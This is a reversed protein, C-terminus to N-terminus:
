HNPPLSFSASPSRMAKRARFPARAAVAFLLAPATLVAYDSFGSAATAILLPPITAIAFVIGANLSPDDKSSPGFSAYALAAVPFIWLFQPLTGTYALLTILGFHQQDSAYFPLYFAAMAITTMVAFRASAMGSARATICRLMVPILLWFVPHTSFAIGAALAAVVITAQGHGSSHVAVAFEIALLVIIADILYDSGAVYSRVITPNVALVVLRLGISRRASSRASLWFVFLATWFPNQWRASGAWHFPAALILSGPLEMFPQDTQLPHSYPNGGSLLIATAHDLGAAEPSVAALGLVPPLAFLLVAGMTALWQGPRVGTAPRALEATESPHDVAAAVIMATITTAVLLSLAVSPGFQRAIPTAAILWWLAAMAGIVWPRVGWERVSRM